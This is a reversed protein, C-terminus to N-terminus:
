FHNGNVNVIKSFSLNAGQESLTWGSKEGISLFILFVFGM